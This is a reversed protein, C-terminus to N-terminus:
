GLTRRGYANFAYQSLDTIVKQWVAGASAGMLTFRQNRCANTASQYTTENIM